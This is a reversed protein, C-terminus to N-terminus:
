SGWEIVAAGWTLGAGFSAMLVLDGDKLVGAHNAEDLAIPISASSTNGYRALNTFVKDMPIGLNEAMAMIIRLNAQHPIVVSIDSSSLNNKKLARSAIDTLCGVAKKFLKNGDMKLQFPKLEICDLSEPLLSSEYSSYLLNGLTGDSQLHTSMIGRGNNSSSIMVAGAGDGLLVCTSRDQWNVIGSLREVGLVLINEANGARIANDAMTLAYLFGSCGASLDFAAANTAGIRSQIMCGASPFQSDPTVTGVILMDLQSASMDAMELAKLSAGVALDTTSEERDKSAIRREKIGTRRTIWEDSTDVILKLEDNSLIKEPLFSGTGVIKGHMM